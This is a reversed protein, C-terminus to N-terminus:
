IESRLDSIQFKFVQYIRIGLTKKGKNALRQNTAQPEGDVFEFVPLFEFAFVTPFVATVSSLALRGGPKEVCGIVGGAFTGPM